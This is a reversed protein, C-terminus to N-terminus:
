LAVSCPRQRSPTPHTASLCHTHLCMLSTLKHYTSHLCYPEPVHPWLLRKRSTACSSHGTSIRPSAPWAPPHALALAGPPLTASGPRREEEREIRAFSGGSLGQGPPRTARVGLAKNSLWGAFPCVRVFAQEAGLGPRPASDVIKEQM